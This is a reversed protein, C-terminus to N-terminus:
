IWGREEFISHVVRVPDDPGLQVTPEVEDSSFEEDTEWLLTWGDPYHDVSLQGPARRLLCVVCDDESQETEERVVEWGADVLPKLVGRMQELLADWSMEDSSELSVLGEAIAADLDTVRRWGPDGILPEGDELQEIDVVGAEVVKVTAPNVNDLRGSEDLLTVQVYDLSPVYRLYLIGEVELADRNSRNARVRDGSRPGAQEVTM